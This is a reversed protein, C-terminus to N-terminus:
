LFLHEPYCQMIYVIRDTIRVVLTSKVNESGISILSFSYLTENFQLM